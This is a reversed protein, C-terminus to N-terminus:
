SMFYYQKIELSNLYFCNLSLIFKLIYQTVSVPLSEVAQKEWNTVVSSVRGSDM